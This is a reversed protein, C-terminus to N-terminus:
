DSRSGEAPVAPQELLRRIKAMGRRRLQRLNEPTTELTEALDAVVDNPLRQHPQGPRYWEFTIRIVTQEKETLQKMADEVQRILKEDRPPLDSKEPISEWEDTKSQYTPMRQAGRLVDLVLRQAIRGLWARTRRRIRDSDKIGAAHYLKARRYARCFTESVIDAVGADGVLIHSYARYCVGYLYEAHRKYFEAWADRATAPDEDRMSMYGMLDVDTDESFSIKRHSQGKM